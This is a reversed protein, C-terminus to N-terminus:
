TSPFQPIVQVVIRLLVFPCISGITLTDNIAHNVLLSIVARIVKLIYQEIVSLQRGACCGILIIINERIDNAAFQIISRNLLLNKLAM